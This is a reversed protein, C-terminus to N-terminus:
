PKNGFGTSPADVANARAAGLRRRAVRVPLAALSRVTVGRM